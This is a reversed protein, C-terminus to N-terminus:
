LSRLFNLLSQQDNTGLMNFNQIVQNAESGSSAHQQIAVKLDNTRGDHLLFVRQGVGWLPASRFQFGNANGQTVGDALGVGMNHVGFDSFPQIAVNSDTPNLSSQATTQNQIHCAQCGINVFVQQGRTV